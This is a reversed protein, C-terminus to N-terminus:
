FFFFVSLFCDLRGKKSVVDKKTNIRQLSLFILMLRSDMMQLVKDM